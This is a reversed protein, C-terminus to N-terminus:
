GDYSRMLRQMGQDAGNRVPLRSDVEVDLADAVPKIVLIGEGVTACSFTSLFAVFAVTSYAMEDPNWLVSLGLCLIQVPLSVVVSFILGFLRYRLGKNIVMSGVKWCSFLFWVIYGIGFIAFAITNLLPYACLVTQNGFGNKWVTSSRRFIEPLQLKFPTFFILVIQLLLLPLCTILVFSIAWINNHTKQKISVNVLFLLTVLFAPQFFGLNLAVHIKCLNSQQDITFSSLFPYLYRRRFFPLRFLETIAWLSIFSVLLFRVTWLSNFHQLHTLSKSKFRLHFIFCLSLISLILITTIFSITTLDLVSNLVPSPPVFFM